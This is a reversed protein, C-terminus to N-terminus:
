ARGDVLLARQPVCRRTHGAEGQPYGTWPEDGSRALLQLTFRISDMGAEFLAANIRGLRALRDATDTLRDRLERLPEAHPAELREIVDSVTAAEPDIGLRAAAGEVARRGEGDLRRLDSLRQLQDALIGSLAESRRAVLAERQSEALALLESYAADQRQLIWYLGEIAEHM